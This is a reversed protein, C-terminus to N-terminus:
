RKWGAIREILEVGRKVLRGLGSEEMERRLDALADRLRRGEETLGDSGCKRCM